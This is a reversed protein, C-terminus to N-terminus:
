EPGDGPPIMPPAVGNVFYMFAGGTPEGNPGLSCSLFDYGVAPPTGYQSDVPTANYAFGLGRAPDSGVYDDSADGLDPDSFVGLYVDEFTESGKYALAFDYFTADGYADPRDYAYALVRVELGLPDTQT